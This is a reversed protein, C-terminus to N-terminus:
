KMQKNAFKTCVKTRTSSNHVGADEDQNGLIDELNVENKGTESAIEMARFAEGM